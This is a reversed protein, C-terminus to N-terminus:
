DDVQVDNDRCWTLLAEKQASAEYEHWRNLMGRHELLDKFRRYAGARSFMERVKRVDDALFDEAFEIALHKGLDLDNKHPISLYKEEEDIDPPLEEDNDGIESHCFIAGTEKSLYAVTEMPPGLSLFEFADFIESFKARAM